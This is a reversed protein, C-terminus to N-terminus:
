KENKMKGKTYAKKVMRVFLSEWSAGFIITQLINTPQMVLTFLGGLILYVYDDIGWVLFFSKSEKNKYNSYNELFKLAFVSVFGIIFVQWSWYDILSEVGM